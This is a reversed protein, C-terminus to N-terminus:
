NRKFHSVPRAQGRAAAMKAIASEYTDDGDDDDPSEYPRGSAQTISRISAKRAAKDESAKVAVQKTATVGRLSRAKEGVAKLRNAPNMAPEAQALKADYFRMFDQLEPDSWEQAYERQFSEVAAEWSMQSKVQETVARVVDPTVESPRKVQLRALADIAAQEGMIANAYLERVQDLDPESGEDKPSLPAELSRTAAEKATRLYEDAASVKSASARLQELTLWKEQGNIVLRYHTVGNTVRVDDAGADRAEDSERDAQEAVAVAEEDEDGRNHPPRSKGQDNWAEDDLDELGDEVKAEDGQNAIANLRNLRDNNRTKNAERALRENDSRLEDQTMEERTKM